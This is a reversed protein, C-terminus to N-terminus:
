RTFGGDSRQARLCVYRKLKKLARDRIKKENGALRRAFQSEVSDAIKVESM